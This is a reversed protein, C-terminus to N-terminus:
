YLEALSQQVIRLTIENKSSMSYLVCVVPSGYHEVGFGPSASNAGSVSSVNADGPNAPNASDVCNDM